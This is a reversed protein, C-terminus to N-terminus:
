VDQGDILRKIKEVLEDSLDRKEAIVYSLYAQSVGLLSALKRQSLGLKQGALHILEQCDVQRSGASAKDQGDPSPAKGPGAGRKSSPEESRKPVPSQSSKKATEQFLWLWDRRIKLWGRGQHQTVKRLPNAPDPELYGAQFLIRVCQGMELGAAEALEPHALLDNQVWEPHSAAAEALALIM